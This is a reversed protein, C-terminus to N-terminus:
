RNGEQPARKVSYAAWRRAAAKLTRHAARVGPVDAAVVVDRWARHEFLRARVVAAEERTLSPPAPLRVLAVLAAAVSDSPRPGWLYGRLAAERTVADLPAPSPLGEGLAAALAPDLPAEARLWRLQHPLDRALDARLSDVLAEAVPSGPRLMVAAPEGTRDGRAAGVRVLRYGQARRFALVAPTAGFLTGHVDPRGTAHVADALLRGLGRRRWAPHVAIRVSRVMQLSGAHERGAHTVLTDALAQGRLRVRGAAASAALAPGLGGEQVVLNVAVVTDGVRLVHVAAGPADLMRTLDDPTTRYHAHVLLGFVQRLLPEDRGLSDRDLRAHAPAAPSPEPVVPAPRADVALLAGVKAELPCGEGWRIPAALRHREVPGREQLWALFRLVFGRGTGEYGESTTAFALHASPHAAVLAQLTAVPLLAAEDVALVELPEGGDLLTDLPRFLARGSFRLATEAAMATGATLAVRVGPPMRALALGLAASKGRGRAALVVSASAGPTTWRDVLREVLRAQESTGLSGRLQPLVPAPEGTSAPLWRELREWARRGVASVPHPPIILRAPVPPIAGPPPLRLLLAGGGRVFGAAVGLIDADLGGHLDLVVADFDTGLMRRASRPPTGDRASIWLADPTQVLGLAASRTEAPSGRLVVLRRHGSARDGGGMEGGSPGFPGHGFGVAEGPQLGLPGGPGAHTPAGRHAAPAGPLRSAVSSGPRPGGVARLAPAEDMTVVVCGTIGRADAAAHADQIQSLPFTPGVEPPIVARYLRGAVAAMGEADDSAVAFLVRLGGRQRTWAVLEEGVDPRRHPRSGRMWARSRASSARSPMTAM